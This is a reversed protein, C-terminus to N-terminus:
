RSYRGQTKEEYLSWRSLRDLGTEGCGGSRSWRIPEADRRTPLFGSSGDRALGPGTWTLENTGFSFFGATIAALSIEIM